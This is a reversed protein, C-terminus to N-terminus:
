TVLFPEPSELFPGRAGIRNAFASENTLLKRSCLLSPIKKTKNCNNTINNETTGVRLLVSESGTWKRFLKFTLRTLNIKSIYHKIKKYVLCLRM